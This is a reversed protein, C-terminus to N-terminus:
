EEPMGAKRLGAFYTAEYLASVKPVGWYGRRLRAVSSLSGEGRLRRAEALEAGARSTDGKLAFAAALSAHINPLEPNATRAKELWVIAEETRSQLLYATGISQYWTATYPDRPSLRIAQEHFSIAEEMAGTYLKCWGLNSLAGSWNRNFLIVAEFEPIAEESRRQGRLM